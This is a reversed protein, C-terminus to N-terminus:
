NSKRAEVTVSLNGGPTVTPTTINMSFIRPLRSNRSNTWNLSGAADFLLGMDKGDSGSNNASGSAITFNLLPNSSGANISTQDTMAPNTNIVNAGGDVNSNVAWPTGNSSANASNLTINNTINNNFTSFSLGLGVNAQNFINNSLSFFRCNGFIQANGGGANNSSTFLNHDFRINVSNFANNILTSVCCISLYFFNNQFLFNQYTVSTSFNLSNYFINGEILHGSSGLGWNVAGNFQCRILRVNNVNLDGSVQVHSVNVTSAFILGQLESGDPSGGAPSNRINAGAVLAQLPLNKDPSWGPGIVTIKKDAITFLDYTNPSGYVYVTDSDSSADIAAQITSFQGLTAPNSSVTRVTAFIQVSTFLAIFILIIKRM